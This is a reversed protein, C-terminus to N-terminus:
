GQYGNACCPNGGTYVFWYESFKEYKCPVCTDVETDIKQRKRLKSARRSHGRPRKLSRKVVDSSVAKIGSSTHKLTVTIAPKAPKESESLMASQPVSEFVCQIEDDDDGIDDDDLEDFNTWDEDDDIVGDCEQEDDLSLTDEVVVETAHIVEEVSVAAHIVDEVVDETAHIGEQVSVATHTDDESVVQGSPVTKKRINPREKHEYKMPDKTARKRLVPMPAFDESDSRLESKKFPHILGLAVMEALPSAQDVIHDCWCSGDSMYPYEFGTKEGHGAQIVTFHLMSCYSRHGHENQLHKDLGTSLEFEEGCPGCHFFVCKDHKKFHHEVLVRPRKVIPDSCRPNQCLVNMESGLSLKYNPNQERMDGKRSTKKSYIEGNLMVAHKHCAKRSGDALIYGIKQTAVVAPTNFAAM